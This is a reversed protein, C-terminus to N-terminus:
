VVSKRDQAFGLYRGAIWEPRQDTWRLSEYYLRSTEALAADAEKLNGLYAYGCALTAYYGLLWGPSSTAEIAKRKYGVYDSFNGGTLHANALESLVMHLSPSGPYRAHQSARTLDDIEQRTRGIDRAALGRDYYFEALTVANTTTPPLQEARARARAAAEPDALAQRDLLTTIDNITRPPPVFSTGSFSAAVKKAEEVSMTSQCASLVLAVVVLGLSSRGTRNM